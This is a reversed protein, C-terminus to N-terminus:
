FGANKLATNYPSAPLFDNSDADDYYAWVVGNPSAAAVAEMVKKAFESPGGPNYPATGDLGFGIQVKKWVAANSAFPLRIRTADGVANAYLDKRADASAKMAGLKLEYLEGGDVHNANPSAEIMGSFMWAALENSEPYLQAGAIANMLAIAAPATTDFEFLAEYPGHLTLVTINPANSAIAQGIKTGWGKALVTLRSKLENDPISPYLSSGNTRYFELHYDSPFPYPENDNGWIYSPDSEHMAALFNQINSIIKNWRATDTFLPPDKVFDNTETDVVIRKNIKPNATKLPALFAKWVSKSFPWPICKNGQADTRPNPDEPDGNPLESFSPCDVLVGLDKPPDYLSYTGPTTVIIANGPLQNVVSSTAAVVSAKSSGIFKNQQNTPYLLRLAKPTPTPPVVPVATFKWRQNCKGTDTGQEVQAGDSSSAARVQLVKGSHRVVLRSFGNSDYIKWQQENRTPNGKVLTVAAAGDNKLARAITLVQKNGQSELTLYGNADNVLKWRQGLTIDATRIQANPIAGAPTNRQVDLRKGNCKSSIWYTTGLSVAQTGLADTSADVESISDQSGSVETSPRSTNCASLAVGLLFLATISRRSLNM